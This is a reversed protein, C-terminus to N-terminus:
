WKADVPIKADAATVIDDPLKADFQVSYCMWSSGPKYYSIRISIPQREYAVFYHQYVFIDAVKTEVLVKHSVYPGLLTVASGFQSKLQEVQDPVKKMAPNSAFLYEIAESSKGQQVMDFFKDTMAQYSSNQGQQARVGIASIGIVVCVWALHLSRKM